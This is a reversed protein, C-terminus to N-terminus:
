NNITIDLINSYSKVNFVWKYFKNGVRMFHATIDWWTYESMRFIINWNFKTYEEPPLVELMQYFTDELIEQWPECFKDDIEYNLIMNFEEWKNTYYINTNYKNKMDNILLDFEEKNKYEFSSIYNYLYGVYIIEWKKFEKEVVLKKLVERWYTHRDKSFDDTMNGMSLMTMAQKIAEELNIVEIEKWNSLIIKM